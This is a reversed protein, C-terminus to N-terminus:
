VKIEKVDMVGVPDYRSISPNRGIGTNLMILAISELTKGLGPEEALIGGEFEDAPPYEALLRGTIPNFYWDKSEVLQVKEWFLPLEPRELASTDVIGGSAELQKMERSLMWGVSRRQFPLLTPLLDRPQAQENAEASALSPAPHLCSLFFPVDTGRYNAPKAYGQGFAYILVRRQAEEEEQLKKSYTYLPEFIGSENLWVTVVIRLSVLVARTGPDISFRSPIVLQLSGAVRARKHMQLHYASVLINKFHAKNFDFQADNKDDMLAPLTLLRTLPLPAKRGSTLPDETCALADGDHAHPYITCLDVIIPGDEDEDQEAIKAQVASFFDREASVSAKAQSKKTTSETEDVTFAIEFTHRIVSVLSEDLGINTIDGDELKIRKAPRASSGSATSGTSACGSTRGKGKGKGNLGGRAVRKKSGASKPEFTFESDSDLHESFAGLQLCEALRLFDVEDCSPLLYGTATNRALSIPYTHKSSSERM